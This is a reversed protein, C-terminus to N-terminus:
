ALEAPELLAPPETAAPRRRTALVSGALVLVFGVAIGVTFQEHLLLVGLALAVAPNLYTIVTARVPGVEAILAFFLLFAVATCVVSLTVVAALVGGSPPRAPLQTLAVPLYAVATLALSAATVGLGPVDSLHRALVLPGVAYGLVVVAMAALAWVDGIHLDLGVLAAVGALGVLLGLLRQPGLREGGSAWSLLAGVLPVAAVLLGSLSSSLRQEATSLLLWPVAIEVGAFILLPRWRPLLPRLQGRFAALPVLMLAAMGTRVFVLAAPSLGGVAVKILLYPIGWIVGMAGFLLWGRRSM